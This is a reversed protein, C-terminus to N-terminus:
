EVGFLHFFGQQRLIVVSQAGLDVPHQQRQRLLQGFVARHVLEAQGKQEMDRQPAQPVGDLIFDAEM